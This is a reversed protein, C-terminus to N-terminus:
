TGSQLAARYVWDVLFLSGVFFMSGAVLLYANGDFKRWTNIVYWAGLAVFLIAGIWPWRWSVALVVLIVGTAILHMVLAAITEWFGYGEGFVDVVFLSVFAAFLLCLIRPMWFLARAVRNKM